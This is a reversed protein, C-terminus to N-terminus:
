KPHVEQNADVVVEGANMAYRGNDIMVYGRIIAAAIGTTKQLVAHPYVPTTFVAHSNLDKFLKQKPVEGCLNQAPPLTAEFASRIGNIKAGQVRRFFGHIRKFDSMHLKSLPVPDMMVSDTQPDYRLSLQVEERGRTFIVPRLEESPNNM